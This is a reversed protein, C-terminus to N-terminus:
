GGGWGGGTLLNVVAGAAVSGAAFWVLMAATTRRGFARLLVPVSSICIGPGALSFAVAHGLPLVSHALAGMAPSFPLLLVVEQGACLFLPLSAAVVTVLGLVGGRFLSAVLSSMPTVLAGILVGVVVPFALELMLGWGTVFVDPAGEVGGGRVAPCGRCSPATGELLGRRVAEGDVVLSLAWGGCVALLLASVVRSLTYWVGLQLSFFLVFPSLLPAALLFALVSAFPVTGSAVLGAAMPIAGCSCMPVVAGLLANAWVSTPWASRRASAYKIVYGAGICSPLFFTFTSFSYSFVAHFVDEDLGAAYSRKGCLHHCYVYAALCLTGAVFTLRRTEVRSMSLLFRRAGDLLAAAWGWSPSALRLCIWAAYCASLVVGAAHHFDGGGKGGTSLGLACLVSFLVLGGMLVPYPRLLRREHGDAM